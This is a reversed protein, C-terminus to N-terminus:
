GLRESGPVPDREPTKDMTNENDNTALNFDILIFLTTCGFPVM